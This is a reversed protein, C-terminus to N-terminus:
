FNPKEIESIVNPKKMVRSNDRQPQLGALFATPMRMRYQFM